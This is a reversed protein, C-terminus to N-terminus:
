TFFTYVSCTMLVIDCYASNKKKRKVLSMESVLMWSLISLLELNVDSLNLTVPLLFAPVAFFPTRQPPSALNPTVCVLRLEESREKLQTIKPM